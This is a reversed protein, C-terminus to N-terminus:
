YIWSKIKRIVEKAAVLIKFPINIPPPMAIATPVLQYTYGREFALEESKIYKPEPQHIGEDLTMYSM